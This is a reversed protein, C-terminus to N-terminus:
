RGIIELRKIIARLRVLEPQSPNTEKELGALLTKAKALEKASVCDEIARIKESVASTRNTADM